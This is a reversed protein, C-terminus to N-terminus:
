GAPAAGADAPWLIEGDPGTVVTPVPETTLAVLMVYRRTGGPHDGRAYPVAAHAGFADAGAVRHVGAETFGHLAVVTSSLGDARRVTARSGDTEGVPPREESLPFGGARVVHGAPATVECVRVEVGGRPVSTTVVRVRGTPLEDEYASAGVGVRIIRRRVSATGDPAVVAVHNDVPDIRSADDLLPGTHTSYALRLYHPDPPQGAVAKRDRDSGHNLLRVVGDARTSQVLWGPGRLALVADAGDVPSREEPDTWVPHEAPLLLGLFGKAAWYPSAPGSYPQVTPLFPRHWGLTLLGREDPVGHAHFHRLAGSAIRRTAGPALPTADVLAGAWLPALAAYRYTLSRGQHVPAGNGGFLHGYGTLFTRLREAYRRGRTADGGMRAWLVPYLHLAWGAYHDFNQGAGDSYWGDGTYWEEIRDLGAEIEAPDHPGGVNRLFQEVVVQFLVWNSAPTRKGVFGALWHVLRERAVPPLRDFLMPRTEHLAVAIGAAEVLSQSMDALPPWAHRHAPDTGAVLGAAYRELTGAPAGGGAIRLAALLFTRAFGELGDSDPGAAGARGPLRYQAFGETAYPIVADLLHDAMAEWHARTWGTIPSRVRDEPPLAVPM